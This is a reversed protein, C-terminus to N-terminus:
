KCPIWNFEMSFVQLGPEYKIHYMKCDNRNLTFITGQPGEVQKLILVNLLQSKSTYIFKKCIYKKVIERSGCVSKQRLMYKQGIVFKKNVLAKANNKAEQKSLEVIPEILADQEQEQKTKLESKKPSAEMLFFGM